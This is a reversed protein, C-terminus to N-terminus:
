AVPSCLCSVAVERARPRDGNRLHSLTDAALVSRWRRAREESSFGALAAQVESDARLEGLLAALEGWEPGYAAELEARLHAALAPGAGGTSVAIQLPGREVTATLMASGGRQEDARVCWVGARDADAGVAANVEPDDTAAVALMAGELDGPAYARARWVLRERGVQQELGAELEPAVVTVVAGAQALREVKRTAITGGGVVVAPRDALELGVILPTTV